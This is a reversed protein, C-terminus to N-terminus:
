SAIAGGKPILGHLCGFCPKHLDKVVKIETNVRAGCEWMTVRVVEGGRHTAVLEYRVRHTKTASPHTSGAWVNVGPKPQHRVVTWDEHRGRWYDYGNSDPPFKGKFFNIRTNLLM